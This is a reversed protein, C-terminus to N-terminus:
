ANVYTSENKTKPMSFKVNLDRERSKISSDLLDISFHLFNDSFSLIWMRHKSRFELCRNTLVQERQLHKRQM